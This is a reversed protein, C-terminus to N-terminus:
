TSTARPRASPTATSPRGSDGALAGVLQDSGMGIHRHIRFLPLVLGLRRFARYWAVAHHYKTDVLTGEIDLIAAPREPGGGSSTDTV